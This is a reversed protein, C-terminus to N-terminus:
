RKKKAAVALIGAGLLMLSAPEPTPVLINGDADVYNVQAQNLAGDYTRILSVTSGASEPGHNDDNMFWLTNGSLVTHGWGDQFALINVTNLYINFMNTSGDRTIIIDNVSNAAISVSSQGVPWFALAGNHVYVGADSTLSHFDFLKVYGDPSTTSALSFIMEVSYDSSNVAGTLSLGQNPGSTYGNPGLTGGFSNLSPGGYQDAYSGGALNYIHTTQTANALAPVTALCVLLLGIVGKAIRM